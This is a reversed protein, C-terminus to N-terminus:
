RRGRRGRHEHISSESSRGRLLPHRRSGSNLDNLQQEVKRRDEEAKRRGSSGLRHGVVAGGLTGIVSLGSGVMDAVDPASAANWHEILTIAALGAVVIVAVGIFGWGLVKEAGREEVSLDSM